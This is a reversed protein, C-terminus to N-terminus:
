KVKEDRRVGWIADRRIWGRVRAVELRCWGPSCELLRGIVGTDVVAVARSSPSPARHLAQRDGIVSVTRRSSLMSQHMWGVTGNADRVKRWKDFEEVIEFPTDRKVYVWEIPYRQGPGTRLNAESAKLSAFRPLEGGAAPMAAHGLLIAAAAGALARRCARRTQADVQNADFAMETGNYFARLLRAVDAPCVDRFGNHGGVM